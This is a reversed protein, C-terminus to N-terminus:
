SPTLKSFVWPLRKPIKQYSVLEPIRANPEAIGGVASKRKVGLPRDLGKGGRKFVGAVTKIKFKAAYLKAISYRLIFAIRSVARKRDNALAWYKCFRLILRNIRTNSESQSLRVFRFNPLPKGSGDCFGQEALHAVAKKINAYLVPTARRRILKWPFDRQKVLLTRSGIFHGLFLIRCKSIHTIPIKEESLTVKLENDLFDKIIGRIEVALKRSGTIGILFSDAYRIYNVYRYEAQFPDLRSIRRSYVEKRRGASMLETYEPNVRRKSPIVSGEYKRCLEEMFKDFKDLYINSLLPSLIGDTHPLGIEPTFEIKNEFLKAELGTRILKLIIPDKIRTEITNM